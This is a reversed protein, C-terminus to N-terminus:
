CTNTHTENILLCTSLSVPYLVLGEEINSLAISSSYLTKLVLPAYIALLCDQLHPLNPVDNRILNSFEWNASLSM